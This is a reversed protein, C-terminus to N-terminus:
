KNKIFLLDTAKINSLISVSLILKKEILKFNYKKLLKLIVELKKNFKKKTDFVELQIINTNKLIKKGGKLIKFENGETDIKLIEINLIKNKNCYDDLTQTKVIIKKFNSNIKFVFIKRTLNWLYDNFTIKNLSSGSHPLFENLYFKKNGNSSDFAINNISFNKIKINPNPDFLFFRANKNKLKKKINISFSGEYCGIDFINIKKLKNTNQIIKKLFNNQFFRDFYYYISM